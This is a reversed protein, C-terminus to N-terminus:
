AKPSLILFLNYPELINNCLFAELAFHGVECPQVAFSGIMELNHISEATTRYSKGLMCCDQSNIDLM